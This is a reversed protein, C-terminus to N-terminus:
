AQGHASVPRVRYESDDESQARTAVGDCENPVRAYGALVFAPVDEARDVQVRYRRLGPARQVASLREQLIGVRVRTEPEHAADTRDAPQLAVAVDLFRLVM